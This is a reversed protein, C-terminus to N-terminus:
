EFMQKNAYPSQRAARRISFVVTDVRRVTSPLNPSPNSEAQSGKRNGGTLVMGGDAATLMVCKNAFSQVSTKLQISLGPAPSRPM